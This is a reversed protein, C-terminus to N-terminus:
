VVTVAWNKEKMLQSVYKEKVIYKGKDPIGM